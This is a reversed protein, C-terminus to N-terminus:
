KKIIRKLIQPYNTTIMPIEFDTKFVPYKNGPTIKLNKKESRTPHTKDYKGIIEGKRNIISSSIYFKKSRKELATYIVYMNYKLSIRCIETKIKDKEFVKKLADKDSLGFTNFVEPLCVIDVKEKGAQELLLLGEKTMKNHTTIGGKEGIPIPPQVTAVKIFRNSKKKM